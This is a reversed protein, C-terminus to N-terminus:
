LVIRNRIETSSIDILKTHVTKWKLDKIKPSKIKRQLRPLVLFIVLKALQNAKNWTHLQEFEDQGILFYLKVDNCALHGGSSPDAKASFSVHCDGDLKRLTGRSQKARRQRPKMAIVGRLSMVTDITYCPKKKKIEIDLVQFYKKGKITEKVLELRKKAPLLDKKLKHPPVGCPIFYVVELKYEKRAAEVMKLHGNHIPNFTGGFLGIRQAKDNRASHLSAHCDVGSKRLKSRSQKARRQRPKTALVGRLSM